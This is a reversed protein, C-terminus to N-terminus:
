KNIVKTHHIDESEQIMKDSAPYAYIKNCDFSQM